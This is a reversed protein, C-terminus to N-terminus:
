IRVPGWPDLGPPGPAWSAQLRAGEELAMGRSCLPIPLHPTVYSQTAKFFFFFLVKFRCARQFESNQKNSLM